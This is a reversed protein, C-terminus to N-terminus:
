SSVETDFQEGVLGWRDPPVISRTNPKAATYRMLRARSFLPSYKVSADSHALSGQPYFFQQYGVFRYSKLTCKEPWM